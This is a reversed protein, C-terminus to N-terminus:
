AARRMAATLPLQEAIRLRTQPSLRGLPLSPGIPHRPNSRLIAWAKEDGVRPCWKLFKHITVTSLLEPVDDLVERPDLRGSKIDAKLACRALRVENARDLAEMHQARQVVMMM